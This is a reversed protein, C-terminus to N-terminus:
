TKDEMLEKLIPILIGNTRGAIEEPGMKGVLRHYHNDEFIGLQIYGLMRGVLRGDRGKWLGRKGYAAGMTEMFHLLSQRDAFSIGAAARNRGKEMAIIRGLKDMVPDKMVRLFGESSSLFFSVPDLKEALLDCEAESVSSPAAIKEKYYDYVAKLLADKSEFHNYFAATSIGVAKVIDRISTSDMGKGAFLDLAALFIKEKTDNTRGDRKMDPFLMNYISVITLVILAFM